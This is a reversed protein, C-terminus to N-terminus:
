AGAMGRLRQEFPALVADRTYRLAHERGKTADAITNGRAMEAATLLGDRIDDVGLSPTRVWQPHGELVDVAAIDPKHVSVIPKGTAMYEFVKGSTVYKAGPVWFLLVDLSEYVARMDTKPSAGEYHVGIDEEIPMRDLLIPVHRPFFGLHGHVHLTADAMEPHGRAARWGNFLEEIPMADTVTGVYGFRLPRTTPPDLQLDGLIEPEWGNPVITMAHEAFPYRNAYWALMGSNVFVIESAERLVREEWTWASHGSPYKVEETFQNFTWADRYDLVYPIRLARHLIWAAAFAAFPNGTAVVVDYPRRRHEWLARAVVRPIWSAYHEPFFRETEWRHLTSAITPFNARFRGYERIDNVWRYFDMGPRVVSVEPHVTSEISSDYSDIYQTFFERPATHVTVDWGQEALHNATARSRFVGSARTPPFYFALYLVRPRRGRHSTM